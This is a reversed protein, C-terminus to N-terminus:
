CYFDMATFMSETYWQPFPSSEYYRAFGSGQGFLHVGFVSSYRLWVDVLFRGFWWEIYSGAILGNRRVTRGVAFGLNM